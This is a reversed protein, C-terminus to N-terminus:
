CRSWGVSARRLPAFAGHCACRLIGMCAVWLSRAPVEPGGKKAAASRRVASVARCRGTAKARLVGHRLRLAARSMRRQRVLTCGRLWCTTCDASRPGGDRDHAEVEPLVQMRAMLDRRGEIRVLQRRTHLEDAGEDVRGTPTTPFFRCTGAPPQTRVLRAWGM